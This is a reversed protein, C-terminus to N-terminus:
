QKTRGFRAVGRLADRVRPALGNGLTSLAFLALTRPQAMRHHLSRWLYPRAAEADGDDLLSEGVWANASARVGELARSSLRIHERESAIMPEITRLFNKAMHTNLDPRTLQDAAGLRYRVTVVDVLGVPGERCTRLHFDYDEGTHRLDPRFGGVKMLRARRLLVTSTHVLNGMIMPTFIDGTWLREEGVHKALQPAADSLSESGSFLSENTFKRYNSYMTRLYRPHTVTGEPSVACMDSWVMGIEPHRRMAAVQLELKWPLYADDSDLLGVFDGQALLIGSNRAAAVGANRQKHYLVRTDHAYRTAILAETGDSSGDDVVIVEVQSLSQSLVSDVASAICYARNYTPIVVSVLPM